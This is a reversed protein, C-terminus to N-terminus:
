TFPRWNLGWGYAYDATRQPSVGRPPVLYRAERRVVLDPGDRQILALACVTSLDACAGLGFRIAAGHEPRLTVEAARLGAFGAAGPQVTLFFLVRRFRDAHDLNLAVSTGGSGPRGAGTDAGDLRIYPPERLSGTAGGLAQVVGRGGDTLEFLACLDPVGPPREADGAGHPRVQGRHDGATGTAPRRGEARGRAPYERVPTRDTAPEAPSGAAQAVAAVARDLTLRLTGAVAGQRALTVAPARRTLRIEGPRVPEAPPLAARGSRDGSPEDRALMDGATEAEAPAGAPGRTGAPGRAGNPVDEPGPGLLAALGAVEDPPLGGARV